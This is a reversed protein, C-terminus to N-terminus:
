KEIVLIGYNPVNKYSELERLSAGGESQGNLYKEPVETLVWTLRGNLGAERAAEEYLSNTLHWGDLDVPGVDSDALCHFYIGDKVDESHSCCLLGSGEPAPRVWTEANLSDIPYEAPPVTVGVLHGGHKLNLTIAKYFAVLGARDPAYNLLKAGFVVDFQGGPYLM